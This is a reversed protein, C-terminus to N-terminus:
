RYLLGDVIVGSLVDVADKSMEDVADRSLENVTVESLITRRRTGSAVLLAIDCESRTRRRKSAGSM